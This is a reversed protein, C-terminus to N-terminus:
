QSSNQKQRGGLLSKGLMWILVAFGFAIALGILGLIVFTGTDRGVWGGGGQFGASVGFAGCLGFGVMPFLCAIIGVIKLFNKM